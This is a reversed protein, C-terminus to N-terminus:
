VYKVTKYSITNSIVCEEVLVFGASIFARYSSENSKKIYAIINDKRGTNIYFDVAMNVMNRSLGLGRFNKDISIGILMGGENFDYNLRVQGVPTKQENYFILFIYDSNQYRAKFWKLHNEYPITDQNFSNTRVSEDNAWNFYLEADESTARRCFLEM